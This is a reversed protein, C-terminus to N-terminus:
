EGSYASLSMDMSGLADNEGSEAGLPLPAKQKGTSRFEDGSRRRGLLVSPWTVTPVPRGRVRKASSFILAWWTNPLADSTDM